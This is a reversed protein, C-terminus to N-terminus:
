SELGALLEKVAEGRDGLTREVKAFWARRAVLKDRAPLTVTLIALLLPTALNSPEIQDLLTAVEAFSGALLLEDFYDFLLDLAADVHGGEALEQARDVLVVKNLQTSM